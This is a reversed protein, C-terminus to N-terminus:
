FRKKLECLFRTRDDNAGPVEVVEGVLVHIWTAELMLGQKPFEQHLSANWVFRGDTSSQVRTGEVLTNWHMASQWQWVHSVRLGTRFNWEAGTWAVMRSPQWEQRNWDKGFRTEHSAGLMGKAAGNGLIGEAMKRVGGYQFEGFQMWPILETRVKWYEGGHKGGLFIDQVFFGRSQEMAFPHPRSGANTRTQIKLTPNEFSLTDELRWDKANAGGWASWAFNGRPVRIATWPFVRLSDSAQLPYAGHNKSQMWDMGFALSLIDPRACLTQWRLQGRTQVQSGYLESDASEDRWSLSDRVVQVSVQHAKASLEMRQSKIGRWFGMRDLVWFYEVGALAQTAYGGRAWSLGGRLSSYGPYNEGFWAFRGDSTSPDGEGVQEIRKSRLREGFHDVQSMEGFARVGYWAPTAGWIHITPTRNGKSPGETSEQLLYDGVENGVKVGFGPQQVVWRRIPLERSDVLTGFDYSRANWSAERGFLGSQNSHRVWWETPSAIASSASPDLLAQMGAVEASIPLLVLNSDVRTTKAFAVAAFLLALRMVM